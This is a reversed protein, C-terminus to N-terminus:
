DDKVAKEVEEGGGEEGGGGKAEAGGRRGGAVLRRDDVEAAEGGSQVRGGVEGRLEGAEVGVDEPRVGVPPPARAQAGTNELARTAPTPATTQIM